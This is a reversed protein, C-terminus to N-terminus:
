INSQLIVVFTTGGIISLLINKFIKHIVITFIIGVANCIDTKDLKTVHLIINNCSYIFIMAILSAPMIMGLNSVINPVKKYFVLFPAFRTFATIAAIITIYAIIDM